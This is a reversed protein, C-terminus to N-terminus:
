ILERLRGLLEKLEPNDLADNIARAAETYDSKRQSNEVVSKAEILTMAIAGLTTFLPFVPVSWGATSRLLMASIVLMGDVVSLAMLTVYYRSLKEVTRRYGKSTRPQGSRKAKLLASRLDILSAATVSVYDMVVLVLLWLLSVAADGSFLTSIQTMM